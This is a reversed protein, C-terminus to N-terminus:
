RTGSRGAGRKGNCRTMPVVYAQMKQQTLGPRKVCGHSQSNDSHASKTLRKPDTDGSSPRSVTLAKGEAGLIDPGSSRRDSPVRDHRGFRVCMRRQGRSCFAATWLFLFACHRDRDIAARAAASNLEVATCGVMRGVGRSRYM